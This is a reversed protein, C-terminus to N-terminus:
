AAVIREIITIARRTQAVDHVRIIDAGNLIAYCAAALSGELREDIDLNLTKGIFSKRSVGVLLHFGLSLFRNLHKLIEFNGEVSKGFGIGPDIIIRDREVGADLARQAAAGLFSSIENIMDDYKTNKQMDRPTGRMHMLALYSGSEAAVSAIKPDSVLGSVDNVICAGADVARAAVESKVTDISILTKTKKSLREIVPIVRELEEDVSIGESGPRSSEGGVDIIDAGSELMFLAQEYARDPKLYRGGDSFSDPTINLIGMILPREGLDKIKVSL